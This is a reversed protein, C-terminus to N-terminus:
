GVCRKRAPVLYSSYLYLEIEVGNPGNIKFNSDKDWTMQLFFRKKEYM